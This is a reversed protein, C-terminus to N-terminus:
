LFISQGPGIPLDLYYWVISLIVWVIFFAVAFPIMNSILTGIGAEEDYEQMFNITIPVGFSIPSLPNGISDGIRYLYQTWAPSYGLLGFVPVFIQAFIAWKGAGSGIFFDSLIIILIFIVFLLPGTLGIDKVFEALNIAVWTGINSWSFWATFQGMLFATVMFPAASAMSETLMNVIDSMDTIVGTTRGYTIGAIVFTIIILPVLADMLLSDHMLSGTEPNRFISNEPICALVMIALWIILAIATNKLGKKEKPGIEDIQRSDVNPTKTYEGLRPVLIRETVLTGVVSLILVSAIMIYWNSAVGIEPLGINASAENTIGSLLADTGDIFINASFGATISAYGCLIGAIPNRNISYYVAGALTPVIMMAADSAINSIMGVFFIIYTVLPGSAKSLSAKLSTMFLGSRDAIGIGLMMSLVLGLPAFGIFNEVMNSLVYSIGEGTLIGKIALTEGTSPMTFNINNLYLITSVIALIVLLWLFLTFTGPIANGIREVWYLFGRKEVSENKM